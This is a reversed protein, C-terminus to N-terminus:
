KLSKQPKRLTARTGVESQCEVAYKSIKMTVSEIPRIAPEPVATLDIGVHWQNTHM